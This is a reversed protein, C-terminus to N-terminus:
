PAQWIVCRKLGNTSQNVKLWDAPVPLSEPSPWRDTDDVLLYGGSAMKSILHRVCHTRYHGDVLAFNLYKDPLSDAVAVYDPVPTYDIQEPAYDPHNLLVLRYDVNTIHANALQQKVQYYWIANHEISIL